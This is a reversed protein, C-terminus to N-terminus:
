DVDVMVGTDPDTAMVREVKGDRFLFRFSRAGIYGGYSNKANVTGNMIYGPLERHGDLLSTTVIGKAVPEWQTVASYPDKLYGNLWTKAMAEAEPQTVAAGYDATALQQDTIVPMAACGALLILAVCVIM